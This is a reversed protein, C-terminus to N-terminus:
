IEGYTAIGQKITQTYPLVVFGTNKTDVDVTETETGNTITIQNGDSSVTVDREPQIKRVSSKPEYKNQESTFSLVATGETVSINTEEGDNDVDIEPMTADYAENKPSLVLGFLKNKVKTATRSHLIFYLLVFVGAVAYHYTEAIIGLLAFFSILLALESVSHVIRIKNYNM